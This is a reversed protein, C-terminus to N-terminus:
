NKKLEYNENDVLAIDFVTALEDTVNHILACAIPAVGDLGIYLTYEEELILQTLFELVDERDEEWLSALVVAFRITLRHFDVKAITGTFSPLTTLSSAPAILSSTYSQQRSLYSDRGRLSEPTPFAVDVQSALWQNKKVFAQEISSKM